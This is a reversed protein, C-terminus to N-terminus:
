WNLSFKFGRGASDDPENWARGGPGPRLLAKSIVRIWGCGALVCFWKSGDSGPGPDESPCLDKGARRSDPMGEADRGPLCKSSVVWRPGM